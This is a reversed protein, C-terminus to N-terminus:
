GEHVNHQCKRSINFKTQPNKIEQEGKQLVNLNVFSPDGKQLLNLNVFSSVEFEKIFRYVSPTNCADVRVEAVLDTEGHRPSEKLNNCSLVQINYM